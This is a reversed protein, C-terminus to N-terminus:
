GLTAVGFAVTFRDCWIVVTRYRELDTGPPIDYNQDGQNGKLRGLTVFDDDFAGAPAGPAAASLYLHLDPGNDTDLDELRLIQAGDPLDYVTATGSTPHSRDSFVGTSRAVPATPEAPATTETTEPTSPPPEPAAEDDPDTGAAPAPDAVPATGAAEGSTPFTEDVRTDFLLTQPQFWVLVVVASALAVAAAIIWVPRPRRM